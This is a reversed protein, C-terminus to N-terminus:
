TLTFDTTYYDLYTFMVTDPEDFVIISYRLTINWAWTSALYADIITQRDAISDITRAMVIDRDFNSYLYQNEVAPTHAFATYSLLDNNLWVTAGVFTLRVNGEAQADIAFNFTLSVAPDISANSPDVNSVHIDALNIELRGALVFSGGYYQGNGIIFGSSILATVIMIIVIINLSRESSIM